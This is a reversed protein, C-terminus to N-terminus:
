PTSYQKLFDWITKEMGKPVHGGDTVLYLQYKTCSAGKPQLDYGTAVKGASTTFSNIQRANQSALSSDFCGNKYAFFKLPNFVKWDENWNIPSHPMALPAPAVATDNTGHVHIIAATASHLNSGFTDSCEADGAQCYVLGANIAVAAFQNRTGSRQLLYYPMYAGRSVGTLYIRRTDIRQGNFQGTKLMQVIKEIFQSDQAQGAVDAAYHSWTKATGSPSVILVGDPDTFPYFAQSGSAGTGGDGHLFILVPRGAAPTAVAPARYYYTHTQNDTTVLTNSGTVVVPAVGAGQVTAQNNGTTKNSNVIISGSYAQVAVPKFEVSVIQSTGAAVTGSWAGSFGAPYSISSVSLSSTGPNSITLPLTKSEGQTVNDFNLNASLAIGINAIGTGTANSSKNGRDSYVAVTGRYSQIATPKFLVEFSYSEGPKLTITAPPAKGANASFGTSFSIKNFTVSPACMGNKIILTKGLSTGVAVRGYNLGGVLSWDRPLDPNSLCSKPFTDTTSTTTAHSSLSILSLLGLGFIRYGSM